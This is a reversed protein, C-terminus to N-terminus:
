GGKVMRRLPFLQAQILYVLVKNAFDAPLTWGHVNVVNYGHPFVPFLPKVKVIKLGDASGTVICVVVRPLRLRARLLAAAARKRKARDGVIELGHRKALRASSKKGRLPTYYCM